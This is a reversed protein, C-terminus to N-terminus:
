EAEYEKLHEPDTPAQFKRVEVLEGLKDLKLGGRWNWSIGNGPDSSVNYQSVIKLGNETNALYFCTSYTSRGRLTSSVYCRYLNGHTPHQYKKVQFFIRPQTQELQEKGEEFYSEDVQRPRYIDSKLDGEYLTNLESRKPRFVNNDPESWCAVWTEYEKDIFNRIFTIAEEM